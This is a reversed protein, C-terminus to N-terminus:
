NKHTEKNYDSSEMVFMVYKSKVNINTEIQVLIADAFINRNERFGYIYSALIM